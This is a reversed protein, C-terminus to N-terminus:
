PQWDEGGTDWGVLCYPSIVVAVRELMTRDGQDLEGAVELNAVHGGRFSIPFSERAAGDGEGTAPGLVLESGEIFAIGAFSVGDLRDHLITVVERLVDDADGGSALVSDIAELGGRRAEEPGDIV